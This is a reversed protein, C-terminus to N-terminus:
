KAGSAARSSEEQLARRLVPELADALRMFGLDDPHSGDVTGEGDDGLLGDGEVYHMGAQPVSAFATRLAAHNADNHHRFWGALWGQAYLRDEVVVVPVGPRARRLDRLFTAARERIMAADMNPSCDIVYCCADIRALLPGVAADMTGNGAFGLNVVPRDLRRGLIAVHAAGPRSACGGQTISTGYFVIPRDRPPIGEFAAGAPVGIALREMGNRLPLYAAYERSGRSMGDVLPADFDQAPERTVGAWRWRGSDDRAYLDIGSVGTAQMHPLSLSANSLRGRVRIVTADTRFRVAMGASDRSLNWVAPPVAQEAAAPLRDFYRSRPEDGWARGEVGWGTVDHWDLTPPEGAAIADRPPLPGCLVAVIASLVIGSSRLGSLCHILRGPTCRTPRDIIM